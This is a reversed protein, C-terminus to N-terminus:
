VSSVPRQWYPIEDPARRDSRDMPARLPEVSAPPAWGSCADQFQCVLPIMTYVAFNFPGPRFAFPDWHRVRLQFM